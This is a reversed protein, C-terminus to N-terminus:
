ARMLRRARPDLARGRWRYEFNARRVLNALRVQPPQFQAATRESWAYREHETRELAARLEQVAAPHDGHYRLALPWLAGFYDIERVRGVDAEAVTPGAQGLSSYQRGKAAQRRMPFMAGYHDYVYPIALHRGDVGSLREHVRGTWTLQPTVRFFSMRREISTYLRFSQFYHRTYGDVIAVDPPLHPLHRAITAAVPRHVEDADVFAAWEGLGRERHLRLVRNRADAFDVFPARDVILRGTRGFTSAELARANPGDPLESNDNVVVCAAVGELSRLLATLFVEEHRGVILHAAVAPRTVSATIL